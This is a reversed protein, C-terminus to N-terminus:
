EDGTWEKEIENYFKKRKEDDLENPSKVGYKKLKEQFFKKYEEKDGEKETLYTDIKSLIGTM